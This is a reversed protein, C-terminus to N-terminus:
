EEDDAWEEGDEGTDNGQSESNDVSSEEPLSSEGGNSSDQGSGENESSQAPESSSSESSASSSASEFSEYSSFSSSNIVGGPSMNGTTGSYPARQRNFNNAENAKIQQQLQEYLKENILENAAIRSYPTAATAIQLPVAGIVVDVEHVTDPKVWDSTTVQASLYDMLDRYLWNAIQTDAFSLYGTASMPEDYGTWISLSYNTTYGNLWHDPAAEDPLGFQQLQDLTYNTTGSKAAEPLNPNAFKSLIGDTFSDQLMDTVMYATSERMAQRSEGSVEIKEGEPTEFYNVAKPETYKGYNGLAAYAASMQLPTAEGGISNAEYAGAGKNLVIGVNKLFADVNEAGAEQFMKLAPINRSEILATRLTMWGMYQNDYNNIEDGTSYAYPEDAVSSGTSLNNYEIVPGYASFPKISSGVSRPLTTARNLSLAEEQNRGGFLAVIHSTETDVVSIAAQMEADPFYAGAEDNVTDYIYQQAAMDLHTYIKLGDAYMDYGAAAIDTNVQQIYSDILLSTQNAEELRGEISQLGDEIPTAVAADYEEQSITKNELMSYLVTDRREQAAAPDTYPDYTNPAQPMGALLAVQPLTLQNLPKGYYIEAATGIGYVGNSMYVKNIYFEFIEQKTYQKELELAIAIEQVKRKYTQDEEHTSFVSLKVLQQTLTSGGQVIGGARLNAVASALIRIPDFGSHKMFRQDEISTVADFVQQSIEEENVIIRENSSTEFIENGDKDYIVSAVTGKLDADTIEPASVAWAIGIGGLILAILSGTALLGLVIRKGIVKQKQKQKKNSKGRQSRRNEPKNSM